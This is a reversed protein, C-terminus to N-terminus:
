DDALQCNLGTGELHFGDSPIESININKYREKGSVADLILHATHLSITSLMRKFDRANEGTLTPTPVLHASHVYGHEHTNKFGFILIDESDEIENTVGLEIAVEPNSNLSLRFKRNM